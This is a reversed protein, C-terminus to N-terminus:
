VKNIHRMGFLAQVLMNRTKEDAPLVIEGLDDYIAIMEGLKEIMEKSGPNPQMHRFQRGSELLNEITTM